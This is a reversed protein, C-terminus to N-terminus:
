HREVFSVFLEVVVSGVGLCLRGVEMEIQCKEIFLGCRFTIKDLGGM